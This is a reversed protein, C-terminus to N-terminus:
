KKKKNFLDITLKIVSDYSVIKPLDEEAIEINYEKEIMALIELAMMSDMGFDEIFRTKPTVTKEDIEMVKAIITRLKKEVEKKDLMNKVPLATVKKKKGPRKVTKTSKTSMAKKKIEKKIKKKKDLSKVTKKSKKLSTIKKM